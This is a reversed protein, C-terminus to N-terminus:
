LRLAQSNVDWLPKAPYYPTYFGQCRFREPAVFPQLQQVRYKPPRAVGHKSTEKLVADELSSGYIIGLSEYGLKTSEGTSIRDARLEVPCLGFLLNGPFSASGVFHGV